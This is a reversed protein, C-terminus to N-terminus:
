LLLHGLQHEALGLSLLARNGVRLPCQLHLLQNGAPLRRDWHRPAPTRRGLADNTYDFRSVQNTGFTNVVSAILNRDPEYGVTRTFGGMSYGTLLRSNPLYAYTAVNTVTAVVSTIAAFRGTADYAYDLDMGGLTQFGSNRGLSDTSRTLTDTVLGQWTETTLHLSAPDYAFTNTVVGLAVSSLQRGMRDYTNVVDPTADSYDVDTLSGTVPDYDYTTAVGRAWTRTALQGAPTYTYTAGKNAADLKQTLLGTAPDYVWTTKDMDPKLALIDAVSTIENTGRYTYLATMRGQDDYEYAVPYTAGWTALVRGEPDYATHTSQNLADITEVRRGLDDYVITTRNTAGDEVYDLQGLANYHSTATLTRSGSTSTSGIPRRLDDYTYTTVEGVPSTSEVTLGGFSKTVADLNSDPTDTVSWVTQNAADTYTLQRTQNGLLDISLSESTLV